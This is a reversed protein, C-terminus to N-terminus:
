RCRDARRADGWLLLRVHDNTEPGGAGGDFTEGLIEAMEAVVDERMEAGDFAEAFGADDRLRVGDDDVEDNFGDPRGEFGDIAKGSGIAVGGNDGFFGEFEESGVIAADLVEAHVEVFGM